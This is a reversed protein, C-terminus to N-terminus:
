SLALELLERTIPAAVKGGQGGHEILVCVVVRPQAAPALAIFWAHPPGEPNEASGTKGAVQIGPLIAATGTGREVVEIMAERVRAAVAPPVARRLIQPQTKWIVAGEPSRIERVLYPKMMVGGNGLSGTVLAMFLPSVLIEGQGIAAEALGNANSFSEERLPIPAGPLEFPVGEGWGFDRLGNAFHSAGLRLGLSGFYSNCSVALARDLNVWGHARLDRLRRGQIELEGECFFRDNPLQPFEQVGIAATVIKMTSGPPYLGATARNL